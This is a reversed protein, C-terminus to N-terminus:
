FRGLEVLGGTDAVHEVQLTTHEIAVERALIAELEARRAHCDEGRAVLVHASLAPFGSRITWFHLDHLAVVVADRRSGDALWDGADDPDSPVALRVLVMAMTLLVSFAIGAVAAARPTRIAQSAVSNPRTM